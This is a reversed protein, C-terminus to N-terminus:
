FSCVPLTLLLCSLLVGQPLRRAPLLLLVAYLWALPWSLYPLPMLSTRWVPWSPDWTADPTQVVVKLRPVVTHLVCMHAEFPISHLRRTCCCAGSDVGSLVLMSDLMKVPLRACCMRNPESSASRTGCVVMQGERGSCWRACFIFSDFQMRGVCELLSLDCCVPGEYHVAM